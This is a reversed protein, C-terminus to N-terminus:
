GEEVEEKIVARAYKRYISRTKLRQAFCHTGQTTQLLLITALLIVEYLTLFRFLLSASSNVENTRKLRQETVSLLGWKWLYAAGKKWLFKRVYCIKVRRLALDRLFLVNAFATALM